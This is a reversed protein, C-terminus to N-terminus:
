VLDVTTSNGWGSDVVLRDLFSAPLYQPVVIYLDGCKVYRSGNWAGGVTNSMWIVIVVGVGLM